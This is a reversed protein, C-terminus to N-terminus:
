EEICGNFVGRMFADQAQRQAREGKYRPQEWAADVLANLVMRQAPDDTAQALVTERDWGRQRFGMVLSATAAREACSYRTLDQAGAPLPGLLMLCMLIGALFGVLSFILATIVHVPCAWFQRQMPIFPPKNMDIRM